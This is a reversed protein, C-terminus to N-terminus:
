GGCYGPNDDEYEVMDKTMHDAEIKYADKTLEEFTRTNDELQDIDSYIKTMQTIILVIASYVATMYLNATSMREDFYFWIDNCLRAVDKRVEKAHAYLNLYLHKDLSLDEKILIIRDHLDRLSMELSDLDTKDWIKERREIRYKSNRYMHLAAKAFREMRKYYYKRRNYKKM